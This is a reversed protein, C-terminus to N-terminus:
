LRSTGIKQEFVRHLEALFKKDHEIEQRIVSKHKPTLKSGYELATLKEKFHIALLAEKHVLARDKYSFDQNSEMATLREVYVNTHQINQHLATQQESTLGIGGEFAQLREICQEVDRILRHLDYLSPTRSDQIVPIQHGHCVYPAGCDTTDVYGKIATNYHIESQM